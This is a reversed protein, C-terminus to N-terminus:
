RSWATSALANRPSSTDCSGFSSGALMRRSRMLAARSPVLAGRRRFSCPFAGWSRLRTPRCHHHGDISLRLSGGACAMTPRLRRPGTLEIKRLVKKYAAEHQPRREMVRYVEDGPADIDPRCCQSAPLDDPSSEIGSSKSRRLSRSNLASKTAFTKKCEHDSNRKATCAVKPTFIHPVENGSFLSAPSRPLTIPAV